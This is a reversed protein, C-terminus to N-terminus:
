RPSEYKTSKELRFIPWELFIFEACIDMQAFIKIPIIVILLFQRNNFSNIYILKM